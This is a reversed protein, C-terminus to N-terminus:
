KIKHDSLLRHINAIYIRNQLYVSPQYTSLFIFCFEHQKILFFNDIKLTYQTKNLILQSISLYFSKLMKERRQIGQRIHETYLFSCTQAGGYGSLVRICLGAKKHGCWTSRTARVTSPVPLINGDKSLIIHWSRGYKLRSTLDWM